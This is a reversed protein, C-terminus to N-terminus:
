AADLRWFKRPLVFLDTDHKSFGLDVYMKQAPERTPNSTLKVMDVGEVAFAHELLRTTVARGLGRQADPRRVVADIFGYSVNPAHLYNITSMALLHGGAERAISMYCQESRSMKDLQEQVKELSVPHAQSLYTLLEYVHQEDIADIADNDLFETTISGPM